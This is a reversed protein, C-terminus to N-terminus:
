LHPQLFCIMVSFTFPTQVNWSMGHLGVTLTHQLCKPQHHREAPAHRGGHILRATISQHQLCAKAILCYM